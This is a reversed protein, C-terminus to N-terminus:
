NSIRKRRRPTAKLSLQYCHDCQWYSHYSTVARKRGEYIPLEQQCNLCTETLKFELQAAKRLREWYEQPSMNAYEKISPIQM